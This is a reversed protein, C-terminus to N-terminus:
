ESIDKFGRFVIHLSAGIVVGMLLIDFRALAGVIFIYVMLAALSSLILAYLSMFGDVRNNMLWHAAELVLIGLFAGVAFQLFSPVKDVATPLASTADKDQIVIAFTLVIFPLLGAVSRRLTGNGTKAKGIIRLVQVVLFGFVTMIIAPYVFYTFVTRMLESLEVTM